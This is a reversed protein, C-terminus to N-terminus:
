RTNREYILKNLLESFKNLAQINNLEIQRLEGNLEKIEVDKARIDLKLDKIIGNLYNWAYGFGVLLLTCVVGAVGLQSFDMQSLLYGANEINM